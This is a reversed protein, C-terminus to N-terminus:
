AAISQLKEDLVEQMQPPVFFSRMSLLSRMTYGSMGVDNNSFYACLGPAVERFAARAQENDLVDCLLSDLSFPYVLKRDAPLCVGSVNLVLMFKPYKQALTLIDRVETDTLFIDGKVPSRDGGADGACRIGRAAM